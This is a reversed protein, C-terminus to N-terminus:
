VKGERRLAVADAARVTRGQVVDLRRTVLWHRQVQAIGDGAEHPLHAIAAAVLVRVVVGPVGHLLLVAGLAGLPVRVVARAVLPPLSPPLAFALRAALRMAAFRRMRM